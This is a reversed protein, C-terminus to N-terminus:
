WSGGGAKIDSTQTHRAELYLCDPCRITGDNAIAWGRTTIDDPSSLLYKHHDEWRAGCDDCVASYIIHREISM